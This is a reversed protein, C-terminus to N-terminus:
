QDKLTEDANNKWPRFNRMANMIRQEYDEELIVQDAEYSKNKGAKQQKTTKRVQPLRNGSAKTHDSNSTTEVVMFGVQNNHSKSDSM